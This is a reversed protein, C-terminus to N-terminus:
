RHFEKVLDKKSEWVHSVSGLTMCSLADAVVNLKSPHYLVSIEYDEVIIVM